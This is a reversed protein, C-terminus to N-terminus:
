RGNNCEEIVDPDLGRGVPVRPECDAVLQAETRREGSPVVDVRAALELEGCPEAEPAAVCAPLDQAPRRRRPRVECGDPHAYRPCFLMAEFFSGLPRAVAAGAMPTAM